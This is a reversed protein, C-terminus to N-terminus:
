LLVETIIATLLKYMVNLCTISRYQHPDGKCGDIPTLVTRGMVLWQKNSEPTKHSEMVAKGIYRYDLSVTEVM